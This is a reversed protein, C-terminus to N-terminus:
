KCVLANDPWKIAHAPQGLVGVARFAEEVTTVYPVGTLAVFEAQEKQRKDLKPKGKATADKVELCRFNGNGYGPRWVLLDVPRGIVTVTCGAKRLADVIDPQPGDTRTVQQRRHSM